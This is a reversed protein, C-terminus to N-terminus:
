CMTAIHKTRQSTSVNEAMFIAGINDVRCIVPLRVPIGISILVQVVFEIEKEAESLAVFEAESSSLTVGGQAKSKWSIPGGMLYVIFGAVSIRTDKDGAWDSDCYIVLDWMKDNDPTRPEIKLGLHKTDIVFKIVRKMEKMAAMTAGDKVKSLERVVNAIGPRSHKVLYLLMRVGSPYLTQDELSVKFKDDSPRVIGCSPTGPTRFKQLTTVMKGFKKELKQILHPQGIWCKKRDRSFLIECSLYDTMKNDCVFAMCMYEERNDNCIDDCYNECYNRPLGNNNTMM